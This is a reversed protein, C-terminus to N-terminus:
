KALEYAQDITLSGEHWRIEKPEIKLGISICKGKPVELGYRQAYEWHSYRKDRLGIMLHGYNFEAVLAKTKQGWLLCIGTDSRCVIGHFCPVKSRPKMTKSICLANMVHQLGIAQTQKRVRLSAQNMCSPSGNRSPMECYPRNRLIYAELDKNM